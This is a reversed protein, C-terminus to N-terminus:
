RRVGIFALLTIDGPRLVQMGQIGWDENRDVLINFERFDFAQGAVIVIQQSVTILDQLLTGEGLSTIGFERVTNPPVFVGRLSFALPTFGSSVDGPGRWPKAPDAKDRSNRKLIIDRGNKNILRNAVALLKVYDAM